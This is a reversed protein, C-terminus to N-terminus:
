LLAFMGMFDYGCVCVKHACDMVVNFTVEMTVKQNDPFIQFQIDDIVELYARKFLQSQRGRYFSLLNQMKAAFFIAKIEFFTDYSTHKGM